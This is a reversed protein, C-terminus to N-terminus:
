PVPGARPSAPLQSAEVGNSCGLVSSGQDLLGKLWCGAGGGAGTDRRTLSDSSKVRRSALAAQPFCPPPAGAEPFSM